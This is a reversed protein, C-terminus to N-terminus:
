RRKRRRTNSRYKTILDAEPLAKLEVPAELVRGPARPVGQVQILPRAGSASVGWKWASKGGVPEPLEGYSHKGIAGRLMNRLEDKRSSLEAMQEAIEQVERTWEVADMGLQVVGGDSEPYLRRLSRESRDTPTPPEGRRILDMMWECQEVIVSQFDDYPEVDVRVPRSGQLLGFVVDCPARTVLLQVQAQVLIHTPLDGSEESWERTIRSTKGEYPIWGEWPDRLVEADLTCGIQPHKRSRLLKGGPHIKWGYFDAAAQAIPMELVKGWFRPDVIDLRQDEQRPTVKDVYVDFADRRPDEGLIAAVDSATILEQRLALWADRNTDTVGTWVAAEHFHTVKPTEIEARKEALNVIPEPNSITV